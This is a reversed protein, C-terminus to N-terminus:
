GNQRREGFIVRRGEIRFPHETILKIAETYIRHEEKLIRFSLIEETDDDYVPVCSQIIIPGADVDETVFHVTCGSFKVGYNLAQSQAKLGPFSPLLAPHINLIKMPFAQIFAKKIVRMFGALLVYDVEKEKLTKIYEQEATGILVTKKEGPHIYRADVGYKKAKELAPADSNDSLVIVVKADLKGDEINKLIAEMNSGRGSVLIGLKTISSM